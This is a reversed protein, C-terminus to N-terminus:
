QLAGAPVNGRTRAKRDAPEAAKVLPSAAYCAVRRGPAVETLQPHAERCIEMALPCRPHFRCGPPPEALNPPAGSLTKKPADDGIRPLSAVLHETYPHLPETLVDRTPGEEVLRGAYM